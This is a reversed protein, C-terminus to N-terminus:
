IFDFKLQIVKTTLPSSRIPTELLAISLNNNTNFLNVEKHDNVGKKAFTQKVNKVFAQELMKEVAKYDPEYRKVLAWFKKNHSPELVHALEHIVLYRRGREPVNEIAYRSYTIIKSKLNIQALRTRKAQGIRVGNFAVNFTAENIKKTYSIMFSEYLKLIDLNNVAM